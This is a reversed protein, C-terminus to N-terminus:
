LRGPMSRGTVIAAVAAFASGVLIAIAWRVVEADGAAGLGAAAYWGMLVGVVGCVATTVVGIDDRGGPGVVAKGLLSIVIGAIIVGIIEMALEM